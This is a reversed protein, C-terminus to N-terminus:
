TALYCCGGACASWMPNDSADQLALGLKVVSDHGAAAIACTKFDAKAGKVWQHDCSKFPGTGISAHTRANPTTDLQELRWKLSAGTDPLVIVYNEVQPGPKLGYRAEEADGKNIARIYVVGFRPTNGAAISDQLAIADVAVRTHKPAKANSCGPDNKCKREREQGGTFQLKRVFEYLEDGSYSDIPKTLAGAMASIPAGVTGPPSAALRKMSDAPPADGKACGLATAALAFFVFRRHFRIM